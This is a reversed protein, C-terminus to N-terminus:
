LIKNSKYCEKLYEINSYYLSSNYNDIETILFSSLVNFLTNIYKTSDNNISIILKQYVRGIEFYSPIKYKVNELKDYKGLKIQYKEIYEDSVKDINEVHYVDSLSYIKEITDIGLKNIVDKVENKTKRSIYEILSCTYFLNNDEFSESNIM